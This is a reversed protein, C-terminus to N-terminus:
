FLSLKLNLLPDEGSDVRQYKNHWEMEAKQMQTMQPMASIANKMALQENQYLFFLCAMMASVQDDKKWHEGLVKNWARKFHSIEEVLWWERYCKPDLHFTNSTFFTNQIMEICWQKSVLYHWKDIKWDVNWGWRIKMNVPMWLMALERAIAESRSIDSAFFIRWNRARSKYDLFFQKMQAFREDPDHSLRWTNDVWYWENSVIVAAFGPYDRNEAEDYWLIVYDGQLPSEQQKWDTTFVTTNTSYEWYNEALMYEYWWVNMATENQLRKQRETLFEVDDMTYHLAVVPRAELFEARMRAIEWSEIKEYIDKRSKCLHMWHETRIRHILQEITEPYERQRAYANKRGDYFKGAQTKPDITSILTVISDPTWILTKVYEWKLYDAEDGVAFRTRRSRSPDDQNTTIFELNRKKDWDVISIIDESKKAIKLNTFLNNLMKMSYAEYPANQKQSLGMYLVAFEQLRENYDTLEKLLVSTSMWTMVLSKWGARPWIIYNLRWYKLLVDLQWKQLKRWNFDSEPLMTAFLKHIYTWFINTGYKVWDVVYEAYLDDWLDWEAYENEALNSRKKWTPIKLPTIRFNWLITEKMMILTMINRSSWAMEEGAQERRYFYWDLWLYYNDMFKNLIMEMRTSLNWKTIFQLFQTDINKKLLPKTELPLKIPVELDPPRKITVSVMKDKHTDYWKQASLANLCYRLNKEQGDYFFWREADFDRYLFWFDNM